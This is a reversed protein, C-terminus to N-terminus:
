IETPGKDGKAIYFVRDSIELTKETGFCSICEFGEAKLMEQVKEVPYGRQVHTEFHRDFCDSDERREFITLDFTLTQEEPDYFNEWIYAAEEDTEAFTTHGIIESFKHLTSMDFILLGGPKLHLAINALARRFDEETLLYNFGDTLSIAADFRERIEFTRLDEQLYRIKAHAQLSKEHARILMEESLDIGVVKYGRGYLAISGTGTGCALDLLSAAKAEKLFPELRDLVAEYNYDEMFKDYIASLYQYSEM